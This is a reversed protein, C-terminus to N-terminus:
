KNKITELLKIIEAFGLFSMGSILSIIWYILASLASFDSHVDANEVGMFIGLIFGTIFIIVAIVILINSIVNDNSITKFENTNITKKIEEFDEESLLIPEKKYKRMCNLTSDYETFPYNSYEDKQLIDIKDITVKVKENNDTIWIEDGVKLNTSKVTFKLAKSGAHGHCVIELPAYVTNYIGNKLLYESLKEKEIAKKSQLFKEIKENM